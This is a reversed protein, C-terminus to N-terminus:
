QGEAEDIQKRLDEAGKQVTAEVARAKDLPEDITRKLAQNSEEQTAGGCASLNAMAALAFCLFFLFRTKM